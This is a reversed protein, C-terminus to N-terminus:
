LLPGWGDGKKKSASLRKLPSRVISLSTRRSAKIIEQRTARNLGLDVAEESSTDDLFDDKQYIQDFARQIEGDRSASRTDTNIPTVPHQSGAISIGIQGVKARRRAATIAGEKKPGDARDAGGLSQNGSSTEHTKPWSSSSEANSTRMSLRSPARSPTSLGLVEAGKGSPGGHGYESTQQFGELDPLGGMGKKTKKANRLEEEHNRIREQEELGTVTQQHENSLEYKRIFDTLGLGIIGICAYMIWMKSLSQAFAKRAVQRAFKPLRNIENVSSIASGGTLLDVVRSEIGGEIMEKRHGKLQSQLVVGGLVVSVANAFQRIFGFTSCAAGIDHPAVSNQLAMMPSQFNPGVGIGAIMQYIIVRSWSTYEPLDIFLAFGLTLFLMGGTILPQYAGTKKIIYGTAISTFSLSLAFPFLFVGSLLANAGLVAQFYVPLFYSGAIFVFGHSFDIALICINSFNKLLRVPVLPYKAVKAEILFFVVWIVIGAIILTIVPGSSWPFTVGGFEIGLLLLVTGGVVTLCGLWDIAKIGEWFPTVPTHVKLFVTTLILALGDIPVNVWFCWRWDMKTAFLGGLFPGSANAISWVLGLLGYYVGRNRNSKILQLRLRQIPLGAVYRPSFLDGILINVLVLLGGSGLGQIVRGAILTTMGKALACVVSGALFTANALMLIPKRGFIDSTKAWIPESAAGALLYASGIWVFGTSNTHMHEAITPLATTIITIDLASLFVSVFLSLVLLKSPSKQEKEM